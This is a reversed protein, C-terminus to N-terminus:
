SGEKPVGMLEIAPPTGYDHNFYLSVEFKYDIYKGVQEIRWINEKDYIEIIYGKREQKNNFEVVSKEPLLAGYYEGRKKVVVRKSTYYYIQPELLDSDIVMEGNENERTKIDKPKVVVIGNADRFKIAPLGFKVFNEVSGYFDIEKEVYDKFGRDIDDPEYEISWNTDHFAKQTSTIFDNFVPMTVHKYNDKMYEYEEPTQNPNRDKMLKSPFVKADSHILIREYMDVSDKYGDYFEPLGDWKDDRPRDVSKIKEFISVGLEIVEDESM